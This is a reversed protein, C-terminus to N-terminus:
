GQGYLLALAAPDLANNAAPGNNSWKSGGGFIAMLAADNASATTAAPASTAAPAPPDVISTYVTTHSGGADTITVTVYYTRLSFANYTHTGLVDFQGPTGTDAVIIGTKSGGNAPSLNSVFTSTTGDGWNITATYDGLISNGAAGFNAAAQPDRDTFTALETTFQKGATVESTQVVGKGTLPADSVKVTTHQATVMSNAVNQTSTAGDAATDTIYVAVPYSGEEAYTTSGTVTFTTGSVLSVTGPTTPIITWSSGIGPVTALPSTFTFAGASYNFGVQAGGISMVGALPITGTAGAAPMFGNVSPAPTNGVTGSAVNAGVGWNIWATYDAATALPDADTFTGVSLNGTSNGEYILGAPAGPGTSIRTVPTQSATLPADAVTVTMVETSAKSGGLVDTISVYVNYTGKDAYTHSGVVAFQTVAPSSPTVPIFNAFSLNSSTGDGWNITGSFDGGVASPNNDTFTVWQQRTSKGEVVGSTIAAPLTGLLSVGNTVTIVAGAENKLASGGVDRITATVPYAGQAGYTHNAYVDYIRATLTSAPDLVVNASTFSSTKGDGWSITGSFDSTSSTPDGDEFVAVLAGQSLTSVPSGVNVGSIPQPFAVTWPAGSAPPTPLSSTFTFAGAAYNFGVQLGDIAMVGPTPGTYAAQPTFGNVTPAPSAAVLGYSPSIAFLPADAVTVTSGPMTLVYGGVDDVTVTLHYAGEEAYTHSGYVDWVGTVSNYKITAAASSDHTLPLTGDGWNITATYGGL